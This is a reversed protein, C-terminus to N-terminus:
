YEGQEWLDSIKAAPACMWMYTLYCKWWDSGPFEMLMSWSLVPTPNPYSASPMSNLFFLRLWGPIKWICRSSPSHHTVFPLIDSQAYTLIYFLDICYSFPPPSTRKDQKPQHSKKPLLSHTPCTSHPKSKLKTTCKARIQIFFIWSFNWIQVLNLLFFIPFM